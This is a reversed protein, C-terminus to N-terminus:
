PGLRDHVECFLLPIQATYRVFNFSKLENVECLLLPQPGRRRVSTSPCGGDRGAHSDTPLSNPASNPLGFM